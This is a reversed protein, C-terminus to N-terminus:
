KRCFLSFPVGDPDTVSAMRGQPADTPGYMVKGGMEKILATAADIDEVGLYVTWAPAMGGMQETIQMVGARAEGEVTLMHYESPAGPMEQATSKLLENYFAVAGKADPTALEFWCPSGPENQRGCGIRKKAQWLMCMVGQPDTIIAMRGDEMADFPGHLVKGGLNSVKGAAADVDDVSFYVYWRPPTGGGDHDGKTAGAIYEGQRKYMTYVSSGGM